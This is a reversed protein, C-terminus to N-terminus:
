AKDTARLWAHSSFPHYVDVECSWSEDSCSQMRQRVRGVNCMLTSSLVGAVKQATSSGLEM